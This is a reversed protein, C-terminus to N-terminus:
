TFPMLSLFCFCIYRKTESCLCHERISCDHALCNGTISATARRKTLIRRSSHRTVPIAVASSSSVEEEEKDSLDDEEVVSSSGKSEGEPSGDSSFSEDSPDYRRRKGKMNRKARTNVKYQRRESGRLSHSHSPLSPSLRLVDEDEDQNDSIEEM